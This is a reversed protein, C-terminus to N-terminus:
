GAYLSFVSKQAKICAHNCVGHTYWFNLTQMDHSTGVALHKSFAAITNEAHPALDVNSYLYPFPCSQPTGFVFQQHSPPSCDAWNQERFVINHMSTCAIKEIIQVPVHMKVLQLCVFVTLYIKGHSSTVAACVPLKGVNLVRLWSNICVYTHVNFTRMCMLTIATIRLYGSSSLSDVKITAHESSYYLRSRYQRM